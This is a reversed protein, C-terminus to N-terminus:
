SGLRAAFAAREVVARTVKGQAILQGQSEARVEFVVRSGQVASVVARCDISAGVPSARLHAIDVATGVSTHTSALESGIALCTAEELWAILRPTALADVDGSGLYHATDHLGVLHSVEGVLGIRVQSM